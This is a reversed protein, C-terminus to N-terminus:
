CHWAIPLTNDDLPGLARISVPHLVLSKKRLVRAIIVQLPRIDLVGEVSRVSSKLSSSVVSALVKVVGLDVDGPALVGVVIVAVSYAQFFIKDGYCKFQRQRKVGVPSSRDEKGAQCCHKGCGPNTTSGQQM